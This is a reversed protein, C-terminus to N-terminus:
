PPNSEFAVLDQTDISVVLPEKIKEFKVRHSFESESFEHDELFKANRPEIIRLTHPPYYFKFGISNAAYGRFFDNIIRVDLKKLHPNYIRM